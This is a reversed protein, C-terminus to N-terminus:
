NPKYVESAVFIAESHLGILIPSGNRSVIMKHPEEKSIVLLGWTGVIKEALTRKVADLLSIGEDLFLGIYQAILETDTESKLKIGKSQLDKRMAEVHDLTGNHILAIREKMDTHPHANEDTKGGCTAWRTHGLGSVCQKHRLPVDHKLQEICDIKKMTDSACKTLTLTKAEDFTAIGIKIWHFKLM